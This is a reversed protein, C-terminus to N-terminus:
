RHIPAAQGRMYIMGEISSYGGLVKGRPYALSRGNLGVALLLVRNQPNASLRNALVRGASVAGVIIFDYAGEDELPQYVSNKLGSGRDNSVRSCGHAEM